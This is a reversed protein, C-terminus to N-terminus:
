PENGEDHAAQGETENGGKATYASDFDRLLRERERHLAILREGLSAESDCM